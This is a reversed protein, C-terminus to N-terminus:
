DITLKWYYEYQWVFMKGNIFVGVVSTSTLSKDGLTITIPLHVRVKSKERFFYWTNSAIGLEKFLLKRLLTITIVYNLGSRLWISSVLFIHVSSVFSFFHKDGSFKCMKKFDLLLYEVGSNKDQPNKQLCGTVEHYSLNPTSNQLSSIYVSNQNTWFYM